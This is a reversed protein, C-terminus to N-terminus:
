RSTRLRRGIVEGIAIAAVGVLLHLVQIVWHASGQLWSDQNLGILPLLVAVALGAVLLAPQGRVGAAVALGVLLVAILLGLLMHVPVLSPARGIWFLLGLVIAALWCLRLLMLVGIALGRM